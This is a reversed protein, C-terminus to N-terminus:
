NEMMDVVHHSLDGAVSFLGQKGIEKVPFM